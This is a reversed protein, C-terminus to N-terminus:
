SGIKKDWQEKGEVARAMLLLGVVFLGWPVLTFDESVLAKVPWFGIISAVILGFAWAAQLLIRKPLTCGPPIVDIADDTEGKEQPKTMTQGELRNLDTAYGGDAEHGAAFKNM